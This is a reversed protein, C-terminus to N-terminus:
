DFRKQPPAEVVIVADGPAATACRLQVEKSHATITRWVAPDAVDGNIGIVCATVEGAEVDTFHAVLDGAKLKARVATSGSEGVLPKAFAVNVHAGSHAHNNLEEVTKVQVRGPLVFVQAADLPTSLESRAIVDFTRESSGATLALDLVAAPSAPLKKFEFSGSRDFAWAALGIALASTPAGDLAFTGDTALPALLHYGPVDNHDPQVMVFSKTRSTGALKVQGAIRRTPALQLKVHPAVVHAARLAGKVAVV